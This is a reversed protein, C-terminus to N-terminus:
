VMPNALNYKNGIIKVSDDIIREIDPPFEKRKQKLYNDFLDGYKEENFTFYFIRRSGDTRNGHSRHPVYSDFLLIDRPSSTAPVWKLSDEIEPLIEGLGKKNYECMGTFKNESIGFELCGNEETCENAFLAVSIYRDPEFDNWAPHDQHPKFGKGKGYKWNLKDKFLLMNGGYTENVLPKIKKNLLDRLNEHYQIFNEIRSKKKNNEFYIMWKYAKEDWEELENAYKVINTAEETSFFNKILVYGESEFTTKYSDM